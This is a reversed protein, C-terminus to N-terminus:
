GVIHPKDWADSFVWYCRSDPIYLVLHSRSHSSSFNNYSKSCLAYKNGIVKEVKSGEVYSSAEELAPNIRNVKFSLQCLNGERLENLQIDVVEGIDKVLCNIQWPFSGDNGVLEEPEIVKCWKASSSLYSEGISGLQPNVEYKDRRRETDKNCYELFTRSKEFDVLPNFLTIERVNPKDITM